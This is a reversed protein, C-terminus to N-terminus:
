AAALAAAGLIIAGGILSPLLSYEIATAASQDQLFRHLVSRMAMSNGTKM